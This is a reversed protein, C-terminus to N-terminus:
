NPGRRIACDSFAKFARACALVDGSSTRSCEIAARHEAACQAPDKLPPPPQFNREFTRTLEKIKEVEAREEEREQQEQQRRQEVRQQEKDAERRKEAAERELKDVRRQSERDDVAPVESVDRAPIDTRIEPVQEKTIEDKAGTIDSQGLELEVKPSNEPTAGIRRAEADSRLLYHMLNSSIRVGFGGSEQEGDDAM